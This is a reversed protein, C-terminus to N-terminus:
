GKNNSKIWKEILSAIMAAGRTNFHLHDQTLDMGHSQAIRDWSHGLIQHRVISFYMLKILDDYQYKLKKPHKELFAKMRERLPLYMVGEKQALSKIYESYLDAKQNAECALDESMVPLSLVAIQAKTENKLRRLITAYNQQFGEFNPMTDAGIKKFERYRRLAPPNVTANVDNTGILLTVFQSQTAIIEDLRGLLTYTLDSNVGANYFFYREGLWRRLMDVYDTSVNGHTISDGVCTIVIKDKAQPLPVQGKQPFNLPRHHTIKRKM